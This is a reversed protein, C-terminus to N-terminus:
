PYAPSVKSKVKRKGEDTTGSQGLAYSGLSGAVIVLAVARLLSQGVFRM